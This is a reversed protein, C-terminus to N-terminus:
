AFKKTYEDLARLDPGYPVKTGFKEIGASELVVVQNAKNILFSIGMERLADAQHAAYTRGTLSKVQDPTLFVTVIVLQYSM